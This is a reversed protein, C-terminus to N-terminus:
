RRLFLPLIFFPSFSGELNMYDEQMATHVLCHGVFGFYTLARNRTSYQLSTNRKKQM